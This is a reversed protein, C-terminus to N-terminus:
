QEGSARGSRGATAILNWWKHPDEVSLEPPAFWVRHLWARWKRALDKAHPCRMARQAVVSIRAAGVGRSARKTWQFGAVLKM